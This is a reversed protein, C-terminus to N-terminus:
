DLNLNFVLRLADAANAFISKIAFKHVVLEAEEHIHFLFKLDFQQAM